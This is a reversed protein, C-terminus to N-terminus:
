VGAIGLLVISLSCVKVTGNLTSFYVASFKGTSRAAAKSVFAQLAFM